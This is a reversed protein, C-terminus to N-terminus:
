GGAVQDGPGARRLRSELELAGAEGEAPAWPAFDKDALPAFPGPKVELLVTGAELSVLTHWTGAPVEVGPLAGGPALEARETVTGAADLQLVAARGQLAVFLEWKPPEGHRHPRVYTGPEFANLMRQVPDEPGAHLNRNRRLREAAAAEASLETLGSRDLYRM